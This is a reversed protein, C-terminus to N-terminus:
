TIQHALRAADRFCIIFGFTGQFSLSHKGREVGSREGGPANCRNAADRAQHMKYPGGHGRFTLAQGKRAKIGMQQCIDAQGMVVRLVFGRTRQPIEGAGASCPWLVPGVLGSGGFKTLVALSYGGLGVMAAFDFFNGRNRPPFGQFGVEDHL